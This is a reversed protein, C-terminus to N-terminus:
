LEQRRLFALSILILIPIFVALALLSGALEQFGLAKTFTGVSIRLFYMAPFTHAMFAPFGVLSSVPALMGSFQVAPLSTMIGAVFLAAIQTRTFASIVLGYGTMATLYLLAGLLLVWFSGKLTVEFLLVAMVFLVLFAILCLIVLTAGFM